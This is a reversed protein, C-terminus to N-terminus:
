KPARDLERRMTKIEDLMDQLEAKEADTRAAKMAELIEREDEMLSVREKAMASRQESSAGGFIALGKSLTPNNLTEDLKTPKAREKESAIEVDKEHLKRDIETIRSNTVEVKEMLVAPEEKTKEAPAVADKPATATPAAAAAAAAAKAAIEVPELGKTAQKLAHASLRARIAEELEKEKKDKEAKEDAAFSGIALGALFFLTLLVRTNM